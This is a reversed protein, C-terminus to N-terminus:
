FLARMHLPVYSLGLVRFIDTECRLEPAASEVKVAHMTTRSTRARKRDPEGDDDRRGGPAAARTLLGADAPPENARVAVM